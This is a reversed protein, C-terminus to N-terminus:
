AVADERAVLDRPGYQAERRFSRPPDGGLTPVPILFALKVYIAAVLQAHGVGVVAFQDHVDHLVATFALDDFGFRESRTHRCLEFRPQRPILFLSAILLSVRQAENCADHGCGFLVPARDHHLTDLRDKVVKCANRIEFSLPQRSGM